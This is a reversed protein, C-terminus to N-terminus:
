ANKEPEPLRSWYVKEMKRADLGSEAADDALILTSIHCAALTRQRRDIWYTWPHEGGGHRVIRALSGFTASRDSANADIVQQEPHVQGDLDLTTCPLPTTSAVAGIVSLLGASSVIPPRGALTQEVHDRQILVQDSNVYGTETQPPLLDAGTDSLFHTSLTWEHMRRLPENDCVATLEQRYEGQYRDCEELLLRQCAHLRWGGDAQQWRVTLSGMQRSGPGPKFDPLNWISYSHLRDSTDERPPHLVTQRATPSPDDVHLPNDQQPAIYGLREFDDYILASLPTTLRCSTTTTNM